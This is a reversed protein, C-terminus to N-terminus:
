LVCVFINCKSTITDNPDQPGLDTQDKATQPYYVCQYKDDISINCVVIIIKYVCFIVVVTTRYIIIYSM